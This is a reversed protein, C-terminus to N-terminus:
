LLYVKNVETLLIVMTMEQTIVVAIGAPVLHLLLWLIILRQRSIMVM